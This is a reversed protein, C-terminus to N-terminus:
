LLRLYLHCISYVQTSLNNTKDEVIVGMDLPKTFIYEPLLRNNFCELNPHASFM